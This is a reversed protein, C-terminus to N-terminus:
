KLSKKRRLVRFSLIRTAMVPSSLIIGKALSMSYIKMVQSPRYDDIWYQILTRFFGSRAEQTPYRYFIGELVCRIGYRAQFEGFQRRFMENDAFINYGEAISLGNSVGLLLADANSIAQAARKIEDIM